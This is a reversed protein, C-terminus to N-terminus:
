SSAPGNPVMGVGGDGPRGCRPGRGLVTCLKRNKEMADGSTKFQTRACSALSQPSRISFPMLAMTTPAAEISATHAPSSPVPHAPWSSAAGDSWGVWAGTMATGASSCVTLTGWTKKSPAHSLSGM